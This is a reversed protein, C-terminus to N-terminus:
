NHSGIIMDEICTDMHDYIVYNIQVKYTSFGRTYSNLFNMGNSFSIINLRVGLVYIYGVGVEELTLRPCEYSEYM